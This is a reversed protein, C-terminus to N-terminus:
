RGEMKRPLSDLLSLLVDSVAEGTNAWNFRDLVRQRGAEGMRRALGRDTLLLDIARAVAAADRPPVLFGTEGDEVADPIGGAKTGVVPVGCASAELFVLGFGEVSGENRREESCLAFVDAAGYYRPLENDPVKGVFRVLEEIGMEAVRSELQQRCPGDGVVVYTLAHRSAVMRVARLVTEHGKHPALRSVSLVVGRGDLDLSRKLADRDPAPRFVEPDTGLPIVEVRRVRPASKRVLDATFRSIALVVNARSLVGQKVRGRMPSLLRRLHSPMRDWDYLENGYAWIVLPAAVQSMLAIVGDPYWTACMVADVPWVGRLARAIRVDRLPRRGPVRIIRATTHLVVEPCEGWDPAVVTM